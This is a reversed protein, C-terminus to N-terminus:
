AYRDKKWSVSGDKFMGRAKRVCGAADSAGFFAVVKCAAEHDYATLVLITEYGKITFSLRLYDMKGVMASSTEVDAIFRGVDADGTRSENPVERSM